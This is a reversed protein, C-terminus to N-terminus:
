CAWHRKAKLFIKQGYKETLDLKLSEVEAVKKEPDLGRRGRLENSAPLVPNTLNKEKANLPEEYYLQSLHAL